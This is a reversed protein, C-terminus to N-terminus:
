EILSTTFSSALFPPFLHKLQRPSWIINSQGFGLSWFSILLFLFFNMFLVAMNLVLLHNKLSKFLFFEQLVFWCFFTQRSIMNVLRLLKTVKLGTKRWSFKTFSQAQATILDRLINISHARKSIRWTPHSLRLYIWRSYLEVM